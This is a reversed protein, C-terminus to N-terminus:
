VAASKEAEKKADKSTQAGGKEEEADDAVVEVQDLLSGQDDGEARGARGQGEDAEAAKQAKKRQKAAKKAVAKKRNRAKRAAEDQDLQRYTNEMAVIKSDLNRLFDYRRDLVEFVWDKITHCYIDREPPDISQLRDGALDLGMFVQTLKVVNRIDNGDLREERRAAMTDAVTEAADLYVKALEAFGLMRNSSEHEPSTYDEFIEKANALQFGLFQLTQVSHLCDPIELYLPKVDPETRPEVGKSSVTPWNHPNPIRRFGEANLQPAEKSESFRTRIFELSLESLM